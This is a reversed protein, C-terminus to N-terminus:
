AGPRLDSLDGPQHGVLVVTHGVHEPLASAIVGVPMDPLLSRHARLPGEHHLALSLIQATQVARVLPSTLVTHVPGLRPALAEFQGPTTGHDELRTEWHKWRWVPQLRSVNSADIDTLASHRQGGQDGAFYPWEVQRTAPQAGPLAGAGAALGVSIYLATKLGGKTVLGTM